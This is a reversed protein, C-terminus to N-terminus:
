KLLVPMGTIGTIQQQKIYVLLEDNIIMPIQWGGVRFIPLDVIRDQLLILGIIMQPKGAKSSFEYDLPYYSNVCTPDLCEISNLVNVIYLETGDGAIAPIFQASDGFLPIIKDTKSYKRLALYGFAFFTFDLILGKEKIPFVIADESPYWTGTTFAWADIPSEQSTVPSGLWWGRDATSDPVLKSYNM